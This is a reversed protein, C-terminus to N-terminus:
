GFGKWSLTLLDQTLWNILPPRWIYILDELDKERKVKLGDVCEECTLIHDQPDQCPPACMWEAQWSYSPTSTLFSSFFKANVLRQITTLQGSDCRLRGGSTLFAPRILLSMQLSCLDPKKEMPSQWVECEAPDESRPCLAAVLVEQFCGETDILDM